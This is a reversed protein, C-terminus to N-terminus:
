IKADYDAKKDLDSVNTIKHEVSTLATTTALNAISPIEKKVENIKANLTTNTTLNTIDSIKDGINKIKTNHVDKKVVNSKVVNSLKSLDVPVPVLKDVELKDAKSKM